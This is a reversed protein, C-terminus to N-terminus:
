PSPFRAYNHEYLLISALGFLVTSCIGLIVAVLPDSLWSHPGIRDQCMYDFRALTRCRLPSTSQNNTSGPTTLKSPNPTGSDRPKPMLETGITVPGQGHFDEELRCTPLSGSVFQMAYANSLHGDLSLHSEYSLPSTSSGPYPELAAAASMSQRRSSTPLSPTGLFPAIPEYHEENERLLFRYVMWLGLSSPALLNVLLVLPGGLGIRTKLFIIQIHLIFNPIINAASIICVVRRYGNSPRHFHLVKNPDRFVFFWIVRSAVDLLVVLTDLVKLYVFNPGLNRLDHYLHVVEAVIVGNSLGMLWNHWWRLRHQFLLRISDSYYLADLGSMFILNHSAALVDPRSLSQTSSHPTPFVAATSYWPRVTQPAAHM